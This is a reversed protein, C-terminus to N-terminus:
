SLARWLLVCFVLIAIVCVIVLTISRSLHNRASLRKWEVSTQYDSRGALFDLFLDCGTEYDVLCYYHNQGNDLSYEVQYQTGTYLSQMFSTSDSLIIFPSEAPMYKLYHRIDDPSPSNITEQGGLDLEM